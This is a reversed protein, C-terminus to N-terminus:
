YRQAFTVDKLRTPDFAINATGPLVYIPASGWAVPGYKIELNQELVKIDGFVYHAQEGTAIDTYDLTYTPGKSM